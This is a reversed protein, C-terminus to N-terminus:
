VVGAVGCGGGRLWVGGQGGGVEGEGKDWLPGGRENVEGDAEGRPGVVPPPGKKQKKKTQQTNETQQGVGADRARHKRQQGSNRTRGLKKTKYDVM